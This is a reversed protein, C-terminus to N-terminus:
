GYRVATTFVVALYNQSRAAPAAAVVAILSQAPLPLRISTGHQVQRPLDAFSNCRVSVAYINRRTACRRCNVVPRRSRSVQGGFHLNRLGADSSGAGMLLTIINLSIGVYLRYLIAGEVWKQYTRAAGVTNLNRVVAVLRRRSSNM